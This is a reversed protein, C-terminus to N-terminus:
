RNMLGYVEEISNSDLYMDLRAIKGIRFTIKIVMNFTVAEGGFFSANEELSLYAVDGTISMDTPITTGPEIVEYKEELKYRELLGEVGERGQFLQRLPEWSPTYSSWFIFDHTVLKSIELGFGDASIEGAVYRAQHHTLLQLAELNREEDPLM